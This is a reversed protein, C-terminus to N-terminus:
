RGPGIAPMEVSYPQTRNTWEGPQTGQPVSVEVVRTVPKGTARDLVFIQGRKTLQVLAPTTKGGALPFDVLM